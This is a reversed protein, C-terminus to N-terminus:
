GLIKIIAFTTLMIAATCAAAGYEERNMTYMMTVTCMVCFAIGLITTM